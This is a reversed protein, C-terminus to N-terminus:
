VWSQTELFVPVSSNQFVQGGAFLLGQPTQHADKRRSPKQSSDLHSYLSELRCSSGRSYLIRFHCISSESVPVTYTWLQWLANRTCVTRRGSQGDHTIISKEEGGRNHATFFHSVRLMQVSLKLGGLGCSFSATINILRDILIAQLPFFPPRFYM